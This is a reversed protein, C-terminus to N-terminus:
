KGLVLREFLRDFQDLRTGCPSLTHIISMNHALSDQIRYVDNLTKFREKYFDELYDTKYDRFLDGRIKAREDNVKINVLNGNEDFLMLGINTHEGLTIDHTAVILVYKGYKLQSM